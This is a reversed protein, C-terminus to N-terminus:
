VGEVNAFSERVEEIMQIWQPPTYRESFHTLLLRGVKARTALQGVWRTIMHQNRRALDADAAAYQCECILQDVGLLFTALRQQEQETEAIFDTLYAISSGPTRVLLQQRLPASDRTQGDIVCYDQTQVERLWPGPKLGLAQLKLPDVNWRDLETIKYGISPINGHNLHIAEVTFCAGTILPSVPTSPEPHPTAFAESLEHRVTTVQQEHIDHSIWTASRQGILNWVYGRYRHGMIEATGPPGWIHNTFDARDYHRRFYSDFGAVHDM